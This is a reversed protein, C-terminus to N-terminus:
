VANTMVQVANSKVSGANAVGVSCRGSPRSPSKASSSGDDKTGGVVTSADNSPAESAATSHRHDTGFTDLQENTYPRVTAPAADLTM